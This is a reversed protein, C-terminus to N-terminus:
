MKALYDINNELLWVLADGAVFVIISVISWSFAIQLARRINAGAKYARFALALGAVIADASLNPVVAAINFNLSFTLLLAAAMGLAMVGAVLRGSFAYGKLVINQGM